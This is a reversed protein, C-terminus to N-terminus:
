YSNVVLPNPPSPLLENNPNLYYKSQLSKNKCYTPSQFLTWDIPDQLPGSYGDNRPQVFNGYDVFSEKKLNLLNGFLEKNRILMSILIMSIILIVILIFKSLIELNTAM